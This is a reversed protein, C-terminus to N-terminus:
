DVATEPDEPDELDEEEVVKNELSYVKKDNSGVYITGNSVLPSSVVSGDVDYSWIGDGSNSNVAHISNGGSGVYLVNDKYAPSSAIPGAAKFDWLEEGTEPDVGYLHDDLSGVYIGDQTAVASSVVKDETEFSWILSGDDANIAYLNHDHNGIYLTGNLLAAKTGCFVNEAEEFRWKEEGTEANIAYFNTDWCGVYVTDNDVAPPSLIQYNKEFAWNIDGSDPDLAYVTGPKDAEVEPNRGEMNTVKVASFYVTGDILAPPSVAGGVENRWIEEGNSGDVSHFIGNESGFYLVGDVIVPNGWIDGEANFSWAERVNKKPGRNDQSNTNELDTKFMRLEEDDRKSDSEEEKFAYLYGDKSAVYAYGNAITPAAFVKGQTEFSWLKEPTVGFLMSDSEEPTGREPTEDVETEGSSEKAEEEPKEGKLYGMAGAFGCVGTAYLFQRREMSPPYIIQITILKKGLPSSSGFRNRLHQYESVAVTLCLNIITVFM